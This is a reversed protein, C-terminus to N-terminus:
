EHEDAAEEFNVEVQGTESNITWVVEAGDGVPANKILLIERPITSAHSNQSRQWLKTRFEMREGM